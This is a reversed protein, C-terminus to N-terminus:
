GTKSKMSRAETRSLNIGLAITADNLLAADKRLEAAPIRSLRMEEEGEPGILAKIVEQRRLAVRMADSGYILLGTKSPDPKAFYSPADRPSLKM